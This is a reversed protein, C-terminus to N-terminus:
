VFDAEFMELLRVMCKLVKVTRAKDTRADAAGFPLLMKALDHVWVLPPGQLATPSEAQLELPSAM